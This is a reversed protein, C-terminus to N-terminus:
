KGFISVLANVHEFDFLLMASNDPGCARYMPAFGKSAFYRVAGDEADCGEYNYPITLNEDFRPLNMKIRSGRCNTPGIYKVTVLLLNKM